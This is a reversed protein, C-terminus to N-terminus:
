RWHFTFNRMNGTASPVTLIEPTSRCRLVDVEKRSPGSLPSSCSFRQPSHSPDEEVERCSADHYSPSALFIKQVMEPSKM